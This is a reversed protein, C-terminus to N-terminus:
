SWDIVIFKSTKVKYSNIFQLAIDDAKSLIYWKGDQDPVLINCSILCNPFLIQLRDIIAQENKEHFVVLEKQYLINHIEINPYKDVPGYYEKDSPVLYRYSTNITTKAERIAANYIQGVIGNIQRIRNEEEEQFKLQQMSEKTIPTLSM